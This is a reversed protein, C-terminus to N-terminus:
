DEDKLEEVAKSAIVNGMQHFYIGFVTIWGRSYMRRIQLNNLKTSLKMVWSDYFCKNRVWALLKGSTHKQAKRCTIYNTLLVFPLLLRCVINGALAGYFIIDRPHMIRRFNTESDYTFYHDKLYDWVERIVVHNGYYYSGAMIATLNDHSMPEKKGNDVMGFPTQQYFGKKETRLSAVLMNFRMFDIKDNNLLLYELSFLIGNESRLKKDPNVMYYEDMWEVYDDPLLIM